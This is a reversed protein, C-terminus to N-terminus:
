KPKAILVQPSGTPYASRGCLKGDKTFTVSQSVKSSYGSQASLEVVTMGSNSVGGSFKYAKSSTKSLGSGKEYPTCKKASPLTRNLTSTGGRWGVPEIKFVDSCTWGATCTVYQRKQYHFLTRYKVSKKGTRTGFNITSSSSRSRTGSAKFTGKKGTSSVAVGLSSSASKTYSFKAKVYATTSAWQGVYAWRSGYDKVVSISTSMQTVDRGDANSSASKQVTQASSSGLNFSVTAPSGTVAGDAAAARAADASYSKAADVAVLRAPGASTDLQRQFDTTQVRSGDQAVATFTVIGAPDALTATDFSAPVAITYRGNNDATASGVLPMTATAGQKLNNSAQAEAFVAVKAGAAPSGAAGVVTGSVLAETPTAAGAAVTNAGILLTSLLLTSPVVRKM